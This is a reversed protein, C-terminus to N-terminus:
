APPEEIAPAPHGGTVVRYARGRRADFAAVTRGVAEALATTFRELDSPAALRVETELTFTLLRQGRRDAAAQMRTVDRVVAGAASVLHEAAFRDQAAVPDGAGIVAPDVVFASARAALVREVCGRRRREEVLELLGADELVRLHYNLRQRSLGLEAALATASAPERLRELLRRRIPSLAVRVREPEELLEVPAASVAVSHWEFTKETL